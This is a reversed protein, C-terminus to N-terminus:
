HVLGVTAAEKAELWSSLVEAVDAQIDILEDYLEQGAELGYETLGDDLANWTEVPDVALEDTYYRVAEAFSEWADYFEWPLLSEWFAAVRRALQKLEKKNM